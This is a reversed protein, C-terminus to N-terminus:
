MKREAGKYKKFYLFLKIIKIQFSVRIPNIPKWFTPETVDIISSDSFRYVGYQKKL